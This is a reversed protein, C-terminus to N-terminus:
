LAEAKNVEIIISSFTESIRIIDTLRYEDILNQHYGYSISHRSNDKIIDYICNGEITVEKGVYNDPNVQIHEINTLRICVKNCGYLRFFKTLLIIISLPLHRNYM